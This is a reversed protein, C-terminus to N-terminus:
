SWLIISDLKSKSLLYIINEYYIKCSNAISTITPKMAGKAANYMYGTDIWEGQYKYSDIVDNIVIVSGDKGNYIMDHIRNELERRSLDYFDNSYITINKSLGELLENKVIQRVADIKNNEQMANQFKVIFVENTM